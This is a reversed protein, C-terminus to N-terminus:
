TQMIFVEASLLLMLVNFMSLYGNTYFFVPVYILLYQVLADALNVFLHTDLHISQASLKSLFPNSSTPSKLNPISITNEKLPWRQQEEQQRVRTVWGATTHSVTVAMDTIKRGVMSHFYLATQDSEMLVYCAVRSKQMRYRYGSISPLARLIVDNLQFHRTM